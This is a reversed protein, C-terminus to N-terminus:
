IFGLINARSVVCKAAQPAINFIALDERGKSHSRLVEPSISMLVGFSGWHGAMRLPKTRRLYASSARQRHRPRPSGAFFPATAAASGSRDVLCVPAAPLCLADPPDRSGFPGLFNHKKLSNTKASHALARRAPRALHPDSAAHAGIRGAAARSCPGQHPRVQRQLRARGGWIGSPLPGWIGSPL